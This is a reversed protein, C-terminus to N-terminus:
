MGMGGDVQIIQGTIYAADPSLLFSVVNAVDEPKGLRGLPIKDLATKLQDEKLHSIMDTEVFGPAVANVRINHGAVEKALSKAFAIMGGKSSSYNVQRAMGYLGSVSAINIIDGRKQKMFTMIVARTMNFTGNLNTDIVAHWDEPTMMVLASDKLIGANNILIDLSGLESVVTERVKRAQDLDRVDAKFAMVPVGLAKIEKELSGAYQDNRLYNFAINAGDQALKLAIARGIGRSAGTVIATRGKLHM